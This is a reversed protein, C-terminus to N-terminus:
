YHPPLEDQVSRAVNDSSTYTQQRLAIVERTLTDIQAQQRVVVQDLKDLLDETFSAKIELEMLRQDIASTDTM